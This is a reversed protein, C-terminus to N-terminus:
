FPYGVALHLGLGDKFRPINYYGRRSTQYPLHIGVGLDLRLVLFSLDYRLGAGTGTAVQRLFGGSGIKGGPRSPDERQLWVNGADVFLAGSLGGAIRFRFEANLELKLDGTQDFYGYSNSRDARYSGPGLSRITFARISSAGGIYFQETYPLVASNGYAHGAGAFFRVALTLTRSMINYYRFDITEKFFQSIPEGLIRKSGVGREAGFLSWAGAWVNGASTATARITMRDRRMYGMKKDFIFTYSGSPIFQDAFSLAVAPNAAMTEDFSATTKLLNNYVMKFPTLSHMVTPSTRFDYSNTFNFSLMRFFRPRNMLNAGLSYSTTGGYDMAREVFGPVIMRPFVLSGTLGVEYSNMTTSNSERSAEGTQWEYSGNLRLTLKEGGNFINNHGAGLVISPGLFNSSKYALDAEISAEMPTDMEASIMMDLEDGERLSDLPTVEMNVYRFVGLRTLNDLMRNVQPLTAVEGRRLSVAKRIVSRRLRLPRHYWVQVDDTEISDARGEGGPSFISLKLEGRRYRRRAAEPIGRALSMRLDVGYPVRTTDARYELYDPRFWYYGRGRLINTIRVRERTLTDVNYQEGARVNSAGQMAAIEATLSDTVAPFLVTAYHWPRAVGVTYDIHTKKPNRLPTLKFAAKSGFYGHNDLIDEVMGVRLEPQVDKEILVPQKAFTRYLWARFGKKRETYLSNWAWLGTPLPTRLWPSILPNNPKVSLPERVAARVSGPVREGKEISEIDIDHVGTYLTQGEALRRTTSCSCVATAVALVMTLLM